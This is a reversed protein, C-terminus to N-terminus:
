SEQPCPFVCPRPSTVAPALASGSLGWRMWVPLFAWRELEGVSATSGPPEWGRGGDGGPGAVHSCQRGTQVARLSRADSLTIRLFAGRVLLVRGRYVSREALRSRPCAAGLHGSSCADRRVSAGVQVRLVRGENQGDPAIAAQVCRSPEAATSPPSLPQPPVPKGGESVHISNVTASSTLLLTRGRGIYM